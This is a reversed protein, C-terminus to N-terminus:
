AQSRTGGPASVQRPCTRSRWPLRGRMRCQLTARIRVRRRASSRRVGRAPDGVVLRVARARSIAMNLRRREREYFTLALQKAGEAVVPSFIIVDAEGGQFKDITSVRLAVADHEAETLGAKLQRMLLAVQANFPSLVGISGSFRKTRIMDAVLELIKEAEARSVNGGEKADNPWSRRGVCPRTEQSAILRGQYFAENLYAVIGPASRFQDALFHWQAVGRQPVFDFLSNISQAFTHRGATGHGVADMLAHEQRSSLQPIFGLQMPDGVVVAKRARAFQPFPRRSAM